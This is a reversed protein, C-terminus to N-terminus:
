IWFFSTSPLSHAKDTQSFLITITILIPINEISMAILWPLIELPPYEIDTFAYLSPLGYLSDTEVIWWFLTSPSRSYRSLKTASLYLSICAMAALSPKKRLAVVAKLVWLCWLFSFRRLPSNAAFGPHLVWWCPKDTSM